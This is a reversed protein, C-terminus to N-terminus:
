IWDVSEFNLIKGRGVGFDELHDGQKLTESWIETHTETM